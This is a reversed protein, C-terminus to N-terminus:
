RLRACARVTARSRWWRRRNSRALPSAPANVNDHACGTLAVEALLADTVGYFASTVAIVRWRTRVVRYIESVVEPLSSRDALVSSGFKLVV